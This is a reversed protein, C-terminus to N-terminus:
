WGNCRAGVSAPRVFDSYRGTVAWRPWGLPGHGADDRTRDDVDDSRDDSPTPATHYTDLCQSLCALVAIMDPM